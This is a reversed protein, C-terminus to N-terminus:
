GDIPLVKKYKYKVADRLKTLLITAQREPNEADEIIANGIGEDIV